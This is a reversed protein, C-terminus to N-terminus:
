GALFFIFSNALIETFTMGEKDRINILLQFFDNREVKNKERYELTQRVTQTFFEIVDPSNFGIKFYKSIKEFSMVFGFRINEMLTPEFMRKAYKRLDNEPNGLCQTELGFAVDAIVETTFSAYVEKMELPEVKQAYPMLYNIMRDSSSVVNPFMMKMKGSTFTPSLKTRMDKWQQGGLFSLNQSLPDAEESVHFGRDPFSDFHRVFIDKILEPDTPILVPKAMFFLGFAPGVNKFDEYVRRFFDSSSESIGLTNSSGFPIKGPIFPFGLKNWYNFRNKFWLYICLFVLAIQFWMTFSHFELV